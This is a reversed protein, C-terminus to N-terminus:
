EKTLAVTEMRATVFVVRLLDKAADPQWVGLIQTAGAPIALSTVVETSDIDTLPFDVRQGRSGILHERREVPPSVASETYILLKLMECDAEVEPELEVRFGTHRKWFKLQAEGREDVTIQELMSLERGQDFRAQTGGRAELRATDLLKAEGSKVATEIAALESAHHSKSLTRAHLERVMRGPAEFVQTTVIVNKAPLRCTEELVTEILTLNIGSNRVVILSPLPLHTVSSGEPFPVGYDQLVEKPTKEQGSMSSTLFDQPVRFTRTTMEHPNGALPVQLVEPSPAPMPLQPVVDCRLFTAALMMEGNGGPLQHLALLRSQGNELQMGCVTRSHHLEHLPLEGAKEMGHASFPVRQPDPSATHLDYEVQVGISSGLPHLVGEIQLWAGCRLADVEVELADPPQVFVRKLAGLEMGREHTGRIGGESQFAAFHICKATESAELAHLLMSHDGDAAHKQVLSRLLSAPAQITQLTYALNRPRESLLSDFLRAIREICEPTHVLRLTGEHPEAFAGVAAVGQSELWEIFGKQSNPRMAIGMLGPPPAFVIATMGAPAKAQWEPPAPLFLSRYTTCDHRRRSSSLFAACLRGEVRSKFLGILKTSGTQSTYSTKMVTEELDAGAKMTLVVDTELTIGDPGNTSEIAIELGDRRYQLPVELKGSKDRLPNGTQAQSNGSFHEIRSGGTGEIFADGVVRTEAESLLKELARHASPFHTTAMEAARLDEEPGEIVELHWTIGVASHCCGLESLFAEVLGLGHETHRVRLMGKLPDFVCSSGEPFPIGNQELITRSPAPLRPQKSAPAAPVTDFPDAALKAPATPAVEEYADLLGLPVKFERELMESAGMAQLALTFSLLLM